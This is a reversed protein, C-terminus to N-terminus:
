SFMCFTVLVQVVTVLLLLYIFLFNGAEKGLKEKCNSVDGTVSSAM